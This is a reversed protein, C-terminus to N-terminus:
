AGARHLLDDLADLGELVIREVPQMYEDATTTITAHRLQESIHKLTIGAQPALTAFTRRLMQYNIKSVGARAAAPKLASRIWNEPALHTGASSAFIFDRPNRRDSEQRWLDLEAALRASIGVLARSGHTKTAAVVRSMEVTEDIRLSRGLWDDWRLACVEQGRLGALVFLRFILRDRTSGLARTVASADAATLTSKDVPRVDAPMRLKRAPNRDLYGQDIAEECIARLYVRVKDVLSSSYTRALEGLWAQLDVKDLAPLLVKGWKPILVQDFIFRNLDLTKRRWTSEKLRWYRERAFWAFTVAGPKQRAQVAERGREHSEYGVARIIRFLEEEADSRHKETKHGLLKTRHRRVEHGDDDTRYEFWHGQWFGKSTVTVYGRQGGRNRGTEYRWRLRRLRACARCGPDGRMAM